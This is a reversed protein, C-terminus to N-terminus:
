NKVQYFFVIDSVFIHGKDSVFITLDNKLPGEPGLLGEKRLFSFPYIEHFSRFPSTTLKFQLLPADNFKLTLLSSGVVRLQFFLIGPGGSLGPLDFFFSASSVSTDSSPIRVNGDQITVFAAVNSM